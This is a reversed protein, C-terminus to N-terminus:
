GNTTPHRPPHPTAGRERLLFRLKMRAKHLQSKCNGATCGLIDGIEAHEYGEVDHLLYIIRYGPPLDSVARELAVRDICGILSQDARGLEPVTSAHDDVGEEELPILNLHKKRLAMLVVNLALRHLWTSFAAEGRYTHLKRFLQLFVEQTLDEADAENRVMRRCLCYIRRGHARYIQEFAQEDGRKAREATEIGMAFQPTALLATM